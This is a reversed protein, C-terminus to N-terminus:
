KDVEWREVFVRGKRTPITHKKSKACDFKNSKTHAQNQYNKKTAMLKLETMTVGISIKRIQFLPVNSVMITHDIGVEVSVGFAVAKTSEFLTDIGQQNLSEGTSKKVSLLEYLAGVQASLSGFKDFTPAEEIKTSTTLCEVGVSSAIDSHATKRGTLTEISGVSVESSGFYAEPRFVEYVISSQDGLSELVAVSSGKQNVNSYELGITNSTSGSKQITIYKSYVVTFLAGSEVSSVGSSQKSSAQSDTFGAEISSSGGTAKRSIASFLSGASVASSGSKDYNPITYDVTAALYDVSYNCATNSTRRVRFLV